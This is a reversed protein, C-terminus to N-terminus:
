AAQPNCSKCAADITPPTILPALATGEIEDMQRGCRTVKRDQIESEVYHWKTIARTGQLRCIWLGIM